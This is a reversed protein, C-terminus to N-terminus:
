AAGFSGRHVIGFTGEGVLIKEEIDYTGPDNRTRGSGALLKLAKFPLRTWALEGLAEPSRNGRPATLGADVAAAPLGPGPASVVEVAAAPM